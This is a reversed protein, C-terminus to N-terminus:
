IKRFFVEIKDFIQIGWGVIFIIAIAGIIIIKRM